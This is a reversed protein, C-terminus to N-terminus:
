LYGWLSYHVLFNQPKVAQNQLEPIELFLHEKILIVKGIVFLLWYNKM